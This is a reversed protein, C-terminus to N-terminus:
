PRPRGSPGSRNSSNSGTPPVSNVPPSSPKKPFGKENLGAENCIEIARSKPFLGAEPLDPAYGQGEPKLWQQHAISWIHFEIM